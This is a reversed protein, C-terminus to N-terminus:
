SLSPEFELERLAGRVTLNGEFLTWMSDRSCRLSIQIAIYRAIPYNWSYSYAMQPQLLALTLQDKDPGFYKQNDKDWVQCLCRYQAADGRSAHSLQAMEGIFACVERMIPSVFKGRSARIQVAHGFEHAIVLSDSPEGLFSYLITPYTIPGNDLTLAKRRKNRRAVLTKVTKEFTDDIISRQAPFFERMAAATRLWATEPDLAYSGLAPWKHGASASPVERAMANLICRCVAPDLEHLALWDSLSHREAPRTMPM